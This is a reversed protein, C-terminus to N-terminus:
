DNEEEKEREAYIVIRYETLMHDYDIHLDDIVVKREQMVCEKCLSDAIKGCLIEKILDTPFTGITEDVYFKATLKEFTDSIEKMCDGKLIHNM